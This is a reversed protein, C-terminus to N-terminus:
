CDHPTLCECGLCETVGLISCSTSFTPSPQQSSVRVSLPALAEECSVFPFGNWFVSFLTALGLSSSLSIMKQGCQSNEFEQLKIVEDYMNGNQLAIQIKATVPMYKTLWILMRRTCEGEINTNQITPDSIRVFQRIHCKFFKAYLIIGM